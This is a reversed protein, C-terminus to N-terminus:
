YCQFVSQTHLCDYCFFVYIMGADGFMYDQEDAIPDRSLPNLSNQHEVSDIQAIFVMEKSCHPCEPHEPTQIWEPEGGLKTGLGISEPFDYPIARGGEPVRSLQVRIEPLSRTMNKLRVDATLYDRSAEPLLAQEAPSTGSTGFPRPNVAGSQQANQNM